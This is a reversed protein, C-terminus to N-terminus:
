EGHSLCFGCPMVAEATVSQPKVYRKFIKIILYTKAFGAQCADYISFDIIPEGHSGAGDIQKM